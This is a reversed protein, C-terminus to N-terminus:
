PNIAPVDVGAEFMNTVDPFVVSCREQDCEEMLWKALTTAYDRLTQEDLPRRPYNIIGIIAGPESGATYVFTTPTITVCFHRGDCFVACKRHVRSIDITEGTVNCKLGIYITATFTPVQKM